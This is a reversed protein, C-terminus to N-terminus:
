PEIGVLTEHLSEVADVLTDADVRQAPAQGNEVVHDAAEAPSSGASLAGPPSGGASHPYGLGSSHPRTGIAGPGPVGLITKM